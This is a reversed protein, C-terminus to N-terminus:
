VTRSYVPRGPDRELYADFVMCLNRVFMRGLPTVEIAYGPLEVLGERAYAELRALEPAFRRTFPVPGAFDEFRVRFSCMLDMIIRRRVEDEPTRRWGRHVPLTGSLVAARWAPLEKESQVFAGAVEGIGTVGLAIMDDSSKTTYGMFNRHLTGSAAAVALEDTARAFHDM